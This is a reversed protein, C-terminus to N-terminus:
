LASEPMGQRDAGAWAIRGGTVRYVSPGWPAAVEATGCTVSENRADRRKDRPPRAHQYGHCRPDLACDCRQRDMMRMERKHDSQDPM